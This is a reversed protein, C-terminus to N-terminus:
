KKINSIIIYDKKITSIFYSSSLFYALSDFPPSELVNRLLFIFLFTLILYNYKDFIKIDVVYRIIYFIIFCFLLLGIIGGKFLQDLIISHCHTFEIHSYMSEYTLVGYGLVPKELIKAVALDYIPTRDSLTISKNLLSSFVPMIPSKTGMWVILFFSIIFVLSYTFVNFFLYFKKNNFIYFYIIFFVVLIGTSTADQIYSTLIMIIYSVINLYVFKKNYELILFSFLLLPMYFYLNDNSNIFIYDSFNTFLDFVFNLLTFFLFYLYSCYIFEKKYDIFCNVFFVSSMGIILQYVAIQIGDSKNIISVILFWSFYLFMFIPFMDIKKEKIVKSAYLIFLIIFVLLRVGVKINAPFISLVIRTPCTLLLLFFFLLININNNKLKCM